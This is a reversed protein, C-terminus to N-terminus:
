KGSIRQVWAKLAAEHGALRAETSEGTKADEAFFTVQDPSDIYVEIDGTETHWELQIGGRVRPVVIPALFGARLLDWVLVIARIANQPAIPKASHSNWGPPLTLLTVIAELSQRFPQSLRDGPQVEVSVESGRKRVLVKQLKAPAPEVTAAVASPRALVDPFTSASLLEESLIAKEALSYETDPVLLVSAM